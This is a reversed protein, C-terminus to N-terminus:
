RSAAQYEACADKFRADDAPINCDSPPLFPGGVLRQKECEYDYKLKRAENGM